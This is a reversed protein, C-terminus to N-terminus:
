SVYIMYFIDCNLEEMRSKPNINNENKDRKYM